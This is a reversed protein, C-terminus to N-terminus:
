FVLFGRRAFGLAMVWHTDKSLISFGGGHVYFVIPSPTTNKSRSPRWVDLLHARSAGGDVYRLDVIHEIAHREPNAKPHLRAIRSAGNFFGRVLVGGFYRRAEAGFRAPAEGTSLRSSM